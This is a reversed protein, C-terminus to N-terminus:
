CGMESSLVLHYSNKKQQIHDSVKAVIKFDQRTFWAPLSPSILPDEKGETCEFDKFTTEFVMNPHYMARWEIKKSVMTVPLNPPPSMMAEATKAASSVAHKTYSFSANPNLETQKPLVLDYYWGYGDM